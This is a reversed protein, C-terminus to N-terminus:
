LIADPEEDWYADFDLAKKNEVKMTRWIEICEDLNGKHFSHLFAVALDFDIDDENRKILDCLHKKLKDKTSFPIAKVQGPLGRPPFGPGHQIPIYHLLYVQDM